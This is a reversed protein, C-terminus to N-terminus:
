EPMVTPSDSVETVTAEPTERDYLWVMTMKNAQDRYTYSGMDDSALDMQGFPNRSRSTHVAVIALLCLIVAMGGVPLLHRRLWAFWSEGLIPRAPQDDLRQIEREIKSWFFERSEPLAREVENGEFVSATNRLEAALASAEADRTLLDRMEAADRAPLEGDLFAQLKLQDQNTM